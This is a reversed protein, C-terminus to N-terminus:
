PQPKGVVSRGSNMANVMATKPDNIPPQIEPLSPLSGIIAAHGSNYKHEKSKVKVTRASQALGRICKRNPPPTVPYQQHPL